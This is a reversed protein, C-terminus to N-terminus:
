PSVAPAPTKAGAALQAEVIAEVARAVVAHGRANWHPDGDLYLGEGAAAHLAPTLDLYAVGRRKAWDALFSRRMQDDFREAKPPLFLVVPTFHHEGALARFRELIAENLPFTAGTYRWYAYQMGQYLRSREWWALDPFPETRLAGNDLVFKPLRFGM